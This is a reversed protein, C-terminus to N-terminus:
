NVLSDIYNIVNLAITDFSYNNILFRKAQKARSLYEKYNDKIAYIAKIINKETIDELVYVSNLFEKDNLLKTTIVPTGTTLYEFLKSPFSFNMVYDDTKRLNVLIQAGSYIESLEKDNVIGCYEINEFKKSYEKVMDTLPGYGYLNLYVDEDEITTFAKLLIDIGNLKTFSGAFVVKFKDFNINKEVSESEFVGPKLVLYPKRIDLLEAAKEQFLLAGDFKKLLKIGLRYYSDVIFRKVFSKYEGVCVKHTDFVFPFVYIKTAKKIKCLKKEFLFDYGYYILASKNSKRVEDIIASNSIKGKKSVGVVSINKELVVEGVLLAKTLVTIKVYKSLAKVFDLEFKLSSTTARTKDLSKISNSFIYINDIKM